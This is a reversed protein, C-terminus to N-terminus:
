ESRSWCIKGSFHWKTWSSWMPCCIWYFTLLVVRTSTNVTVFDLWMMFVEVSLLAYSTWLVRKSISLSLTSYHRTTCCSTFSSVVMFRSSCFAIFCIYYCYAFISTANLIKHLRNIVKINFKDPIDLKIGDNAVEIGPSICGEFLKRVVEGNSMTCFVKTPLNTAKALPVRWDLEVSSSPSSSSMPWTQFTHKSHFKDWYSFLMWAKLELVILALLHLLFFFLSVFEDVWSLWCGWWCFLWLVVGTLHTIRPHCTFYSTLRHFRLGSCFSFQHVSWTSRRATEVFWWFTEYYYASKM